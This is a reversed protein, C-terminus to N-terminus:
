ASDSTNLEYDTGGDIMNKYAVLEYCVTVISRDLHQSKKYWYSIDDFEPKNM